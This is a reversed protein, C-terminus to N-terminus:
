AVMKRPDGTLLGKYMGATWDECDSEHVLGVEVVESISIFPGGLRAYSCSYVAVGGGVKTMMM